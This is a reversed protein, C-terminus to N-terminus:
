INKTMNHMYMDEGLYNLTLYYPFQLCHLFLEVSNDTFLCQKLKSLKWVGLKKKDIILALNVREKM